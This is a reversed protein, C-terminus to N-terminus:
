DNGDPDIRVSAKALLHMVLAWFSAPRAVIREAVAGGERVRLARPEAGANRIPLLSLASVLATTALARRLQPHFM